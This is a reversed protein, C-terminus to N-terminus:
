NRDLVERVIHLVDDPKFPKPLFAKAGEILLRSKVDPELFGTTIIVKVEPNIEKIRKFEEMGTMVPLGLDTIVLAIENKYKDYLQVAQLGDHATIVKYGKSDLTIRIMNCIFDEDEVVLITETGELQSTKKLTQLETQKINGPLVPFYLKFTTGVGKNSEVDIFGQHAQIIGYVVSLGLGFGKGEEKSTFFPDFIRTKTNDDMGEGTDIVSLCIYNENDANSFREKVQNNRILETKFMLSGGSPMADRANLCLNLLVQHVQASDALINPLEDHLLSHIIIIKPFTDKILDIIEKVSENLNIQRFSIETKRAFTLIQHVLAAGRGSAQIIANVCESFEAPHTRKNELLSAYGMIIGLINNFDHAIGGALTGISEMKQARIFQQELQKQKTVDRLIGRYMIVNGNSDEVPMTTELVVASTGDKRKITYELDKIMKDKLFLERRRNSTDTDIFSYGSADDALLEEKSKYGFLEIGAPNIDIFKGDKNSFFISDKSGEFLRRYRNESEKLAKSAQKRESRILVEDLERQIAPVLRALNGKMVYDHAGAKMAQVAIEEGITGSVIIFPIDLNKKKLLALAALGNFSPLSYDAIVLDWTKSELMTSMTDADVVREYSVDYGNRTIHRLLLIADNESDEVFLIRLLKSM